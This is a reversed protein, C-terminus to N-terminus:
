RWREWGPGLGPETLLRRAFQVTAPQEAAAGEIAEIEAAQDSDLQAYSLWLLTALTGVAETPIGVAEVARRTWRFLLESSPLEGLWLQVFHEEREAETRLDDLAAIARTLFYLIDWLPLGHERASEWDVVTFGGDGALLVNEGYVDGHQLVAPVLPLKEIV